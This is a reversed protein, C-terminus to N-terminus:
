YGAESVLVCVGWLLFREVRNQKGDGIGLASRCVLSVGYM